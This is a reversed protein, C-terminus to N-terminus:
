TACFSIETCFIYSYSIVFGLHSLFPSLKAVFNQAKILSPGLTFFFCNLVIFASIPVYEGFWVDGPYSILYKCQLECGCLTIVARYDEMFRLGQVFVKLGIVLFNRMIIVSCHALRLFKM